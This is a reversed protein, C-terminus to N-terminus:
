QLSDISKKYYQYLKAIDNIEIINDYTVDGAIIYCEEMDITKKYYQYLKSIDGIFIDGSGTIDGLVVITYQYTTDNMEIIIKSATKLYDSDQLEKGEKDQIKINGSTDINEKLNSVTMIDTIIYKDNKININELDIYENLIKITYSDIEENNYYIKLITGTTINGTTVEKDNKIIKYTTNTVIKNIFEEYTIINDIMITNENISFDKIKLRIIPFSYDPTDWKYFNLEDGEVKTQYGILKTNSQIELDNDDKVYAYGKTFVDYKDSAVMYSLDTKNENIIEQNNIYNQFNSMTFSIVILFILYINKYKKKYKKLKKRLQKINM